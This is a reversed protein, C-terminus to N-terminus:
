YSLGLSTNKKDFFTPKMDPFVFFIQNLAYLYAPVLARVSVHQSNNIKLKNYFVSVRM